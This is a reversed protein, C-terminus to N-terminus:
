GRGERRRGRLVPEPHRRLRLRERVARPRVHVHSSRALGRGRGPFFVPEHGPSELPGHAGLGRGRHAQAVAVENIWLEPAPKDPHVYHVATISGVVCGEEVAVAMHHRPDSLFTRVSQADVPDDFVGPAVRALVAEDCPGLLKIQVAM